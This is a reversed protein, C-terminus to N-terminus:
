LIKKEGDRLSEVALISAKSVTILDDLSIPPPSGTAIAQAFAVWEAAHGKDQRLRSKEVKRSGNAVLELSRYDNLVAIRGGTFIEVREKAFAKDGNALYTVLGISGDEFEMTIHVNDEHYRTGDELGVTQISTMKAGIMHAVFDIFHCGEGIIRGGGQAVDQTWHNAPIFGANVRYHVLKPETSKEIFTKMKQALPAFRRNFGVMLYPADERSAEKQITEIQEITLGLPKECFVNKGARLAAMTQVYHLNHRTLIAVTNVTSDTLIEEEASCANQIKFKKALHKANVGSGSTISVLEVQDNKKLAPLMTASAFNGAGLIGLKVPMAPRIKTSEIAIKREVPANEAYKLLVGLFPTKMETILNYAEAAEEIPFRHSILPTIDMKGSAMLDVIAQMNRGETWRVFGIPYDIGEEEYTDDYRGPGYSRSNIFSIEKMYYDRRPLDLGVAGVAVVRARDRCLVPALTVPDNSATDACILVIDCNSIADEAMERTFAKADLQNALAVREPNLDVGYVECGAANAIEVALLGLLGLGIICVKEGLQPESLRFGHLAIAGLTTFAAEEFSVNDPLPTLLNKPIVGFEAHVAHNGGACAVRQGVQFGEMDEGLAVITGASSYGLVMPQSLRNFTADITQLIGERRAKDLVQKVLDPRSTAKGMLSKEAFEVVMRETGASVISAATRVLATGKSPQPVPVNEITSKGDQMNQLVQKM